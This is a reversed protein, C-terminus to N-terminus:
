DNDKSDDYENRALKNIIRLDEIRLKSLWFEGIYFDDQSLGNRKARDFVLYYDGNTLVAYRAGVARAYNFAQDITKQNEKSLFWECKIKNVIVIEHGSRISLDIRGQRYKIDTHRVYGLAEYFAEVLAEHAREQHNIDNKLAGIATIVRNLEASILRQIEKPELPVDIPPDATPGTDKPTDSEHRQVLGAIELQDSSCPENPTLRVDSPTEDKDLHEIFAGVSGYASIARDIREPAIRTTRPVVYDRGYGLQTVLLAKDIEIPVINGLFYILRWPKRLTYPWIENGLEENEVLYVVNARFNFNTTGKTAILVLDGKQMKEYDSRLDETMAWLWLHPNDTRGVSACLERFDSSSLHRKILDAPVGRVISKDINDIQAPVLYLGM